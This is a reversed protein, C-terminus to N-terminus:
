DEDLESLMKRYAKLEYKEHFLYNVLFSIGFIIVFTLVATLTVLLGYDESPILAKLPEWDTINEKAFIMLATDAATFSGGILLADILYSKKRTARDESSDGVPLDTGHWSKPPQINGLKKNAILFVISSGILAFLEWGPKRYIILDCIVAIILCLALFFGSFNLARRTIEQQREDVVPVNPKKSHKM